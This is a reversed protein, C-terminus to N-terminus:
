HITVTSLQESTHILSTLFDAWKLQLAQDPTYANSFYINVKEGNTATTSGGWEATALQTALIRGRAAPLISDVFSPSVQGVAPLSPTKLTSAKSTTPAACAALLVLLVPLSRRVRASHRVNRLNEQSSPSSVDPTQVQRRSAVIRGTFSVVATLFGM